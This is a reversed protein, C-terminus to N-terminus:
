NKIRQILSGLLTNHSTGDFPIRVDLSWVSTSWDDFTWQDSSKYNFDTYSLSVYFLDLTVGYNKQPRIWLDAGGITGFQFFLTEMLGLEIGFSNSIQEFLEIRTFETGNFREFSSWTSTIMDFGSILTFTNNSEEFENFGGMYKNFGLYLGIQVFHQNAIKEQTAIDLGISTRLQGPTTLFNTTSISQGTQLNQGEINYSLKEGIDTLAIGIQPNLKIGFLPFPYNYHIGTSFMFGNANVGRVGTTLDDNDDIHSIGIGISFNDFLERAVNFRLIRTNNTLSESGWQTYDMKAGITWKNLGISASPNYLIPQDTLILTPFPASSLLFSSLNLTGSKVPIAPNIHFAVRNDLASSSQGLAAIRNGYEVHYWTAATNFGQGNANSIAVVFLILSLFNLIKRFISQLYKRM